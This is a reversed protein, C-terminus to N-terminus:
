WCTCRHRSLDHIQPAANLINPPECSVALRHELVLYTAHQWYTNHQVFALLTDIQALTSQSVKRFLCKFHRHVSARLKRKLRFIRVICQQADRMFLAGKKSFVKCCGETESWVKAEVHKLRIVCNQQKVVSKYPSDRHVVCYISALM